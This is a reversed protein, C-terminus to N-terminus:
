PLFTLVQNARYCHLDEAMISVGKPLIFPRKREPEVAAKHRRATLAANM